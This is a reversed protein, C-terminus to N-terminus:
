AKKKKAKVTPKKKAKHEQWGAWLTPAICVSSYTGFLLGVIIPFAFSLISEVGMILAVVCVVVMSLITAISTNITRGLSQNISLDVIESVTKTKNYLRKNERVRDYIVITDNISYGLITLIVAMFSDDLQIRFLVFVGFVMFIDHFLALVAFLGASWGGVKKFRLAIYIIMLLGGFVVAILCKIFFEKGMNPNVSTISLQTVEQDSFSEVLKNNLKSQMESDLSKNAVLSVEFGNKDNLRNYKESVEVEQGLIDEAISGVENLDVAGTEGEYSYSLLTGGRFNIDMQVGFILACLLIIVIIASSLAYYKKRNKMFQIQKKAM